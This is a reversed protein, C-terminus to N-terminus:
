DEDSEVKMREILKKCKFKVNPTVNIVVIGEHPQGYVVFSNNPLEIIVPLVLLDEEGDIYLIIPQKEKITVLEKIIEKIKKWSEVTITAAPNKCKIEKANGITIKEFPERLNKGDIISLHPVLNHELAKQVCYDGVFIVLQPQDKEILQILTKTPQSTILQGLPKKLENRMSEPLKLDSTFNELNDQVM